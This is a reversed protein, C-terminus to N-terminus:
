APCLVCCVAKESAAYLWAGDASWIVNATHAHSNTGGSGSPSAVPVTRAGAAIAGEAATDVSLLVVCGQDCGCALLSQHTSSLLGGQMWRPRVAICLAHLGDPLALRRACRSDVGLCTEHLALPSTSIKWAIVGGAGDAIALVPTPAALPAGTRTLAAGDAIARPSDAIDVERDTEKPTEGLVAMQHGVRLGPTLGGFTM